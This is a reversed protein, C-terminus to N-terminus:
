STALDSSNARGLLPRVDICRMGARHAAEIGLDADEFVLCNRPAIGIRRAAELFVDPEPKHKETDEATVVTEFWDLIGAHALQKRTIDRWGGSAVALKKKGVHRRAFDVIPGIPRVTHLKRLFDVEKERAVAHVDVTAQHEDALLKVIHWTPQGALSYFRQETFTFGYKELTNRWAVYHVPMSDVLTGDCDFILGDARDM